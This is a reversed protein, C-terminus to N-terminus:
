VGGDGFDFQYLWVILEDGQIGVDIKFLQWVQVFRFDSGWIKIQCEFFVFDDKVVGVVELWEIFLNDWYVFGQLVFVVIYYQYYGGIEFDFVFLVDKVFVVVVLSSVIQYQKMFLIVVYLVQILYVYVGVIVGIQM